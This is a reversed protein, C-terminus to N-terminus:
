RDMKKQYGISGGSEAEDGVVRVVRGRVSWWAPGHTPGMHQDEGGDYKTSRGDIRDVLDEARRQM